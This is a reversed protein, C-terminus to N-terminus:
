GPSADVDPGHLLEVVGTDNEGIVRFGAAAFAALSPANEEKVLARLGCVGLRESAASAAMRLASTGIGRGRANPALGISIEALDERIRDLRVQGVPQGDVEVILLACDPDELKRRFWAHHEEPSIETASFSVQRTSPDNRLTLVLDEDDRDARRLNLM